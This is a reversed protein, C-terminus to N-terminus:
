TPKEPQLNMWISRTLIRKPIEQQPSERESLKHVRENEIGSMRDRIKRLMAGHPDDTHEPSRILRTRRAELQQISRELLEIRARAKKAGESYM